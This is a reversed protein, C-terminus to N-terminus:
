FTLLHHLLRLIHFILINLLPTLPKLPHHLLPLLPLITHHTYGLSLAQPLSTSPTSTNTADSPVIAFNSPVNNNSPTTIVNLSPVITSTPIQSHTQSSSVTLTFPADGIANIKSPM